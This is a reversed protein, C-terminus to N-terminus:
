TMFHDSKKEIKDSYKSSELMCLDFDTDDKLTNCNYKGHTYIKREYVHM